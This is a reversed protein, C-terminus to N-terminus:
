PAGPNTARGGGLAATQASMRATPDGGRGAPAALPERSIEKGTADMKVVYSVLDNESVSMLVGKIGGDAMKEARMLIGAKCGNVCKVRAYIQTDQVEKGDLLLWGGSADKPTGVIEGNQVKWEAQGIPKFGTLSSGAFRYDARFTPGATFVTAALACLATTAVATMRWNMHGRAPFESMRGIAVPHYTKTSSADM